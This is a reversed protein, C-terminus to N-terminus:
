SPEGDARSLQAAERKGLTRDFTKQIREIIETRYPYRTKTESLVHGLIRVAEDYDGSEEACRAISFRANLVRRDTPDCNAELIALARNYESMARDFRREDRHIHGRVLYADATTEHQPPLRLEFIQIALNIEKMAQDYRKGRRHETALAQHITGVLTDDPPLARRADSLASEYHEMAEDYQEQAVLLRALNVTLSIQKRVDRPTTPNRMCQLAERVLRESEAFEDRYFHVQSLLQLAVALEANVWAENHAHRRLTEVIGQVADAELPEGLAIRIQALVLRCNAAQVSDPGYCQSALREAIEMNRRAEVYEGRQLLTVGIQHRMESEVLPDFAVRDLESVLMKMAHYISVEGPPGQAPAGVMFVWLLLTTADRSVKAQHLARREAVDARQYLVGLTISTAVLFVLAISATVSIARHRAVFKRVDYAIGARRASVPRRRLFARLDDALHDVSQFRSAPDRSLSKMLIAELDGRLERNRKAPREIDDECIRRAAEVASLDEVAHPRRGTLLEHLMAGLAYVDGRVDAGAGPDRIREPSMYALTGAGRRAMSITHSWRAPEDDPLALGFDVIKVRPSPDAAGGAPTAVLVNAPKLDRHIVGRQNAHSVADCVDLMLAIRDRTKAPVPWSFRDLPVGEVFEMVIYPTDDDTIGADIFRAIAPHDLRALMAAEHRWARRIRSAVGAPMHLLKLALRQQSQTDRVEYVVGMGGVGVRRRLEYHAVRRGILRDIGCPTPEADTAAFARGELFDGMRMESDLLEILQRRMEADDGCHRDILAGRKDPAADLIALFASETKQWRTTM